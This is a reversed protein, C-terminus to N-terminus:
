KIADNNTTKDKKPKPLEGSPVSDDKIGIAITIHVIGDKAELPKISVIIFPLLAQVDFSVLPAIMKQYMVNIHEIKLKTDKMFNKLTNTYKIIPNGKM